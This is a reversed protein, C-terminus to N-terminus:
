LTHAELTIPTTRGAERRYNLVEIGIAMGSRDKMIIVEAGTEECMYESDPDGFWITLTEGSPDHYIRLDAQHGRGLLPTQPM